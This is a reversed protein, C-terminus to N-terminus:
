RIARTGLMIRRDGDGDARHGVLLFMTRILACYRAHVCLRVRVFVCVGGCVCECVCVYARV